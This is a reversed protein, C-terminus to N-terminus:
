YRNVNTYWLNAGMTSHAPCRCGPQDRPRRQVGHINKTREGNCLPGERSHVPNDPRDRQPVDLGPAPLNDAPLHKARLINCVAPCGRDRGARGSLGQDGLRCTSIGVYGAFNKDVGAAVAAYRGGNSGGVAYVPVGFKATLMAQASSIDCITLYYEPWEKNEFHTYDTQPNLPYGATEGGRGRYDLFMFTYGAKAYTVM